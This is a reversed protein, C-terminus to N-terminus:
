SDAQFKNILLCLVLIASPPKYRRWHRWLRHILKGSSTLRVLLMFIMGLKWLTSWVTTQSSLFPTLCIPSHGTWLSIENSGCFGSSGKGWTSCLHGQLAVSRPSGRGATGVGPLDRSLTPFCLLHVEGIGMAQTLTLSMCTVPKSVCIPM